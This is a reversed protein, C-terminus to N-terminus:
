QLKRSTCSNKYSFHPDAHIKGDGRQKFLMQNQLIGSCQYMSIPCLSLAQSKALQLFDPNKHTVNPTNTYGQVVNHKLVARFSSTCLTIIERCSNKPKTSQNKSEVFHKGWLLTYFVRPWHITMLVWPSQWLLTSPAAGDAFFPRLCTYIPSM